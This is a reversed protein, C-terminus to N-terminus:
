NGALNKYVIILKEEEKNWNFKDRVLKQGNQGMEQAKQPHDLLNIIANAIQSSDLPNVCIGSNNNEVIEKWLPFDSAIVPIGAEMYEFMKVPLADLYNKIPHLTVLGAVSKEMIENAVERDVFGLENVKNWGKVQLIEDRYEKPSFEGGLELTINEINSLAEIMETIGRVKTLGGVYCIKRKKENWNVKKNQNKTIPFNNIDAVNKNIKLFREKIFPTATVIYDFRKCVSNEYQETLFAFSRRIIKPIYYKSLIQRPLDEHVDYIIKKGKRKLRLGAQLFEPDHFHYVDADLELAKKYAAKTARLFRQLRGSYDCPVGIVEVGDETFSKGNVVILTVDFGAKALSKCEKYFIRVDRESHVTTIHCVKM